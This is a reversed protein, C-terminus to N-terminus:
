PHGADDASPDLRAARSNLYRQEPASTTISAARRYAAVAESPRRDLELLHARVAHTRHNRAMTKGPASREDLLPEIMALGAPAGDVMAVAVARNLTVTPSPALRDLMAYLERIQPWDTDDWTPAEAHVAAIAAQLCFPGVTRSLLVEELLATGEAILGADWRSRDQEALPVLDPGAGLGRGGSAQRTRTAARAETILMLALLGATEGDEPLAARLQRTLRIAEATLTHDILEASETSTHGATFMLYLVYRVARVRGALEDAPMLAPDASEFRAGHERLTQKARTIRRNMTGVPVLFVSAIQGTTLGGVARLTLEVAARTPLVPHCCLLLLQLTDDHDPVDPAAVSGTADAIERDTRAREARILDVLRRSAVRILWGRPQRPVGETPWQRSAALLAEQTADECLHFDSHRRLLAGLVRPAETRWLEALEDRPM